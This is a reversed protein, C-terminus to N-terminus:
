PPTLGGCELARQPSRATPTARANGVALNYM